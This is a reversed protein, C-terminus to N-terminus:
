ARTVRNAQLYWHDALSKPVENVGREFVVRTQGKITLVVRRPFLMRVTAEDPFLESAPRPATVAGYARPQQKAAEIAAATEPDKPQETPKDDDAKTKDDKAM